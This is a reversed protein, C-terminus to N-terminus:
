LFITIIIAIIWGLTDWMPKICQFDPAPVFDIMGAEAVGGCLLLCFVLLPLLRWLGIRHLCYRVALIALVAVILYFLISGIYPTSVIATVGGVFAEPQTALAVAGAGVLVGGANRWLVDAIGDCAKGVFNTIKTVTQTATSAEVHVASAALACAAITGIILKNMIFSGKMFNNRYLSPEGVICDDLFGTFM